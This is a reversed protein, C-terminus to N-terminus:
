YKVAPLLQVQLRCEFYVTYGPRSGVHSSNRLISVQKPGFSGGIKGQFRGLYCDHRSGTGGTDAGVVGYGCYVRDSGEGV